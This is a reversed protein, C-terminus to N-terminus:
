QLLDEIEKLDNSAKIAEKVMELRDNEKTARLVPLLRLGKAGFKITL